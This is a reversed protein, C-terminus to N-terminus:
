SSFRVLWVIKTTPCASACCVDQWGRRVDYSEFYSSLGCPKRVPSARQSHRPWVELLRSRLSLTPNSASPATLRESATSRRSASAPGKPLSPGSDILCSGEGVPGPALGLRTSSPPTLPATALGEGFREDVLWGALLWVAAQGCLLMLVSMRLMTARSCHTRM